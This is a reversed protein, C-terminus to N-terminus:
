KSNAFILLSTTRAHSYYVEWLGQMAGGQGLGDALTMTMVMKDPASNYYVLSSLVLYSM